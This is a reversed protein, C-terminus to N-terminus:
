FLWWYVFIFLFMWVLDVFHWYIISFDFRLCHFSRYHRLYFRIWRLILFVGGLIVHFGHFGTSFYFISGYSRDLGSFRSYYYELRQILIFLLCLFFTFFIRQNVGYTIVRISHAWTLTVGRRLLIFSNLLPVGFPNFLIFGTPVWNFGLDVSGSLSVDFFYWFICFFFIIEWFIFLFISIKLGDQVFYNHSGFNGEIFIDNFWIRIVLFIFSFGVLLFFFYFFKFFFVLSIM